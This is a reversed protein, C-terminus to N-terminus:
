NNRASVLNHFSKSSKFSFHFNDSYYPTLVAMLTMMFNAICDSFHHRLQGLLLSAAQIRCAPHGTEMASLGKSM